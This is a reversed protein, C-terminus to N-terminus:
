RGARLAGEEKAMTRYLGELAQRTVYGDLDADRQDLLGLVSAKAAVENYKEALRVGKTANAVIPLLGSSLRDSMTAQFQRTLVDGGAALQEADPMPMQRIADAILPRCEPLAAEAARNMALVLADAQSSAGLTQLAKHLKALKGPLPIQVDPNGFYGDARGLSDIARDAARTLMVLSGATARSAPESPVAANALGALATLGLAALVAAKMGPGAVMATGM